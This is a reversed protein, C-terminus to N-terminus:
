VRKACVRLCPAVGGHGRASKEAGGRARERRVPGGAEGDGRLLHTRARFFVVRPDAFRRKPSINEGIAREPHGNARIAARSVRWRRAKGGGRGREDGREDERRPQGVRASM